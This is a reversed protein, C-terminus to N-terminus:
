RIGWERLEETPLGAKAEDIEDQLMSIKAAIRGSGPVGYEISFEGSLEDLEDQMKRIESYTM